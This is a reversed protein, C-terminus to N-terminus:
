LSRLKLRAHLITSTTSAMIGLLHQATHAPVLVYPHFQRLLTHIKILREHPLFARAQTSDLEIGVYTICQTPTLISKQENIRLGLDALLSLTVHIDELAQSRSPAFVLWDDIYPFVTVGLTHLHAAVPAMCKHLYQQRCPSVSPSPVSNSPM